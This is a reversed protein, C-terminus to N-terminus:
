LALGTWFWIDSLTYSIPHPPAEVIYPAFWKVHAAASGPAGIVLAFLSWFRVSFRMTGVRKTIPITIRGARGDLHPTFRNAYSLLIPRTFSSEARRTTK